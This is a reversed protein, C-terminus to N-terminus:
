EDGVVGKRHKQKRNYEKKSKEVKPPNAGYHGAEIIAQRNASREMKYIDEKTIKTKPKKAM